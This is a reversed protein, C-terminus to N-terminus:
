GPSRSSSSSRSCAVATRTAADRTERDLMFSASRRSRGSGRKTPLDSTSSRIWSESPERPSRRSRSPVRPTPSRLSFRAATARARSVASSRRSRAGAAPLPSATVGAPRRRCRRDGVSSGAISQTSDSIDSPAWRREDRTSGRRRQRRTMTATSATSTRAGMDAVLVASRRRDAVLAIADTRRREVVAAVLVDDSACAGNRASHRARSGTALVDRLDSALESASQDNSASADDNTRSRALSPLHTRRRRDNATRRSAERAASREIRLMREASAPPAVSYVTVVAHRSGLRRARGVRQDLRAPNWPLDLHVVM